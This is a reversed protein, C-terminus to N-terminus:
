LSVILVILLIPVIIVLIPLLLNLISKGISLKQVESIALVCLIMTWIGLVVDMAMCSYVLINPIIGASSIDGDSKFIEVGYFGIQPILCVISIISPLMAYSLVRLISKTDGQGDLWKGTWSLMASYLYYSIWGFLGGMVISLGVISLLSSKDGMNKLSARDISSAVGALFLLALMYKEYRNENIYKFVMRPNAWIDTFVQKDTLQVEENLSDLFDQMINEM